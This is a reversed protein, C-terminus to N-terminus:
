VSLPLLDLKRILKQLIPEHLVKKYVDDLQLNEADIVAIIEKYPVPVVTNFIWTSESTM